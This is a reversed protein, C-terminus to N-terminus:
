PALALAPPRKKQARIVTCTDSELVDVYHESNLEDLWVQTACADNPDRLGCAGCVRMEVNARAGFDRICALKDDLPVHVFTEIDEKVDRRAREHASSGEGCHWRVGPIRRANAVIRSGSANHALLMQQEVGDEARQQARVERARRQADRRIQRDRALGEPTSRREQRYVRQQERERAVADASRARRGRASAEAHVMPALAERTSVAGNFITEYRWPAHCLTHLVCLCM